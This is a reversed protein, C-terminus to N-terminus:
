RSRPARERASSSGRVAGSSGPGPGLRGRVQMTAMQQVISSNPNNYGAGAGSTQGGAEKHYLARIEELATVDLSNRRRLEVAGERHEPDIGVWSMAILAVPTNNGELAERTGVVVLGFVITSLVEGVAYGLALGDYSIIGLKDCVMIATIFNWVVFVYWSLWTFAKSEPKTDHEIAIARLHTMLVVFVLLQCV